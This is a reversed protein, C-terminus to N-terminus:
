LCIKIFQSKIIEKLRTNSLIIDDDNYNSDLSLPEYLITNGLYKSISRDIVPTVFYYFLVILQVGFIMFMKRSTNNKTQTLATFVDDIICPIYFIISKRFLMIPIQLHLVPHFMSDINIMLMPISFAVIMIFPWIHQM